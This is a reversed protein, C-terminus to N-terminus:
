SKDGLVLRQSARLPWTALWSILAAIAVTTLITLVLVVAMASGLAWNQATQFQNAVMQGAM